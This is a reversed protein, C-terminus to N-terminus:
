RPLEPAKMAPEMSTLTEMFAVLDDIEQESLNLTKIKPDFVEIAPVDLPAVFHACDTVQKRCERCYIM